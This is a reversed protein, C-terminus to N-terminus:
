YSLALVMAVLPSVVAAQSVKVTGAVVRASSVAPDLPTIMLGRSLMTEDARSLAIGLSTDAIVTTIRCSFLRDWRARRM